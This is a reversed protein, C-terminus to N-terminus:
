ETCQCKGPVFANDGGKCKYGSILCNEATSFSGDQNCYKIKEGQCQDAKCKCRGSNNQSECIKGTECLIPASWNESIGDCSQTSIPGNCKSGFPACVCKGESCTQDSNCKQTTIAGNECSIVSTNDSSCSNGPVKCVCKGNSCQLESGCSKPTLFHNNECVNVLGNADCIDADCKCYGGVGNSPDNGKCKEGNACPSPIWSLGNSACTYQQSTGLTESCRTNGPTCRCKSTPVGNSCVDTDVGTTCKLFPDCEKPASLTGFGLHNIACVQLQDGSCVDHSCRCTGGFGNVDGVCNEGNNCKKPVWNASGITCTAENNSDLCKTGVKNCICGGHACIQDGGCSVPIFVDGDTNCTEVNKNTIDCRSFGPDCKCAALDQSTGQGRCTFGANCSAAAAFNGDVQCKIIKGTEDCKDHTCKCTSGLDNLFCTKGDDCTHKQWKEASDKCTAAETESNCRTSETPSCFCSGSRCIQDTGCTTTATWASGETNCILVTQGEDGGCKKAGPSCKCVAPDSPTGSGQCRLGLPCAESPQYIKNECKKITDGDCTDQTCVGGNCNGGFGNVDGSCKKNNPCVETIWHSADKACMLVTSSDLATVDCKTGTPACKCTADSNEDGRSCKVPTNDSHNPCVVPSDFTGAVKNCRQLQDGICQDHTCKCEGNLGSEDNGLCYTGAPCETSKWTIDTGIVCTYEKNVDANICKKGGTCKCQGSSCTYGVGCSNSFQWLGDSNCKLVASGDDGCKSTGEVCKCTGPILANNGGQCTDGTTPCDSASSFTGDVNCRKIKEGFCQDAKCKCQGGITNLPDCVKGIECVTPATWNESIGDCYQSTIGDYCKSGVPSCICKGDYCSQDSKCQTYTVGNADCEMVMEYTVCSKGPNKCVCKGNDCKKGAPCTSSAVWVNQNSCTMVGDIVDPSCKTKGSICSVTSASRCNGNECLPPSGADNGNHVNIIYTDVIQWNYKLLGKDSPKIQVTGDPLYLKYHNDVSVKLKVEHDGSSIQDTTLLYRAWNQTYKADYTCSPYWIGPPPSNTGWADQNSGWPQSPDIPSKPCNELNYLGYHWSATSFSPDKMWSDEPKTATIGFKSGKNGTYDLLVDDVYIQAWFAAVNEENFLEFAFLWSKPCSTVSFRNGDADCKESNDYACRKDGPKCKCSAPQSPDYACAFGVACESPQDFDGGSNCKAVAGGNQVCKDKTCKCTGSGDIENQCVKDDACSTISLTGDSNCVHLKGSGDCFNKTCKCSGFGTNVDNTLCSTGTPCNVPNSILGSADCTYQYGNYCHTEGPNCRCRDGDATSTCQLYPGCEKPEGISGIGSVDITCVQIKVGLCKDKTCNCKGGYGNSDGTCQEGIKCKQSEWNSKGSKCVAQTELNICKSGEKDCVCVGKSCLQDANCSTSVFANGASNCTEVIKNTVDCRTA